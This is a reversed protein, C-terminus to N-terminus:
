NHGTAPLDFYDGQTRDLSASIAKFKEDTPKLDVFKGVISRNKYIIFTNEVEENIKNLYAETEKDSFSPVFTLALYKTNLERGIEKLENKRKAESYAHENGYVFYAKLYKQRKASEQELFSLWKKIENWNPNNGVFYVIGHYRGYKCVPCARSGKDPGFAHYPIFSPQDEGINLGSQKMFSTKEPYNPINLGLVIDHEAVLLDDDKLTRLIGSGGRNEMKARKKSTLLEDDDFVLDDIYYSKKIGPEKITLHIHAPEDRSPYTGPRISYIAYKGKEDTKVWGRIYGHTQGLKNPQMSRKEEPKHLYRGEIDTQYYYLLIGTAPTKGDVRYITGTVLLKQGNQLWGSSTDTANIHSPMGISYYEENEFPGGISQENPTVPNNTSSTSVQGKCNALCQLFFLGTLLSTKLAIM